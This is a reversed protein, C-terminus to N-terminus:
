QLKLTSISFLALLVAAIWFRVVVKPEAWGKKEFHHHIPAMLFVRRGTRKYGAVQIMVSLAEVVFIGGVIVLLFERQLLVAVTGLSGGLALSGTDGMFVEAPHTNFWLFGLCAGALSACFISLEGIEAFYPINLYEAFTVHGSVYAVAAFVLAPPAALGAALGDLGDALNVANSTGTVVLISLPILGLGLYLRFDKLFPVNTYATLDGHVGTALIAIGVSAGILAQGLLKYRGLLGKRMKRVVLLYDDLFGLLGLGVCTLVALQVYASSLDAWLLTPVVTALVILIGGM